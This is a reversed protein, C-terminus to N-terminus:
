KAIESSHPPFDQKQKNIQNQLLPLLESAMRPSIRVRAVCDASLEIEQSKKRQAQRQAKIADERTPSSGACFTLTFDWPTYTIEVINAYVEPPSDESILPIFKAKVTQEQPAVM